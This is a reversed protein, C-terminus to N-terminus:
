QDFDLKRAAVRVEENEILGLRDGLVSEIDPGNLYSSRKTLEGRSFILYSFGCDDVVCLLVFTSYALYFLPVVTLDDM